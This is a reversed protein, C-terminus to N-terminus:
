PSPPVSTATRFGLFAQAYLADDALWPTNMPVAKPQRFDGGRFVPVTEDPLEPHPAWSETWEAVNGAMGHVGDPSLDGAVADVDCWLAHGDSGGPMAGSTGPYDSGTNALAPDPQAGWPYLRGDTGRAAREWEQETPLRRGLWRACAWADWWDVHFVPSQLTLVAGHWPQGARAAELIGQWDKPEHGGKAAPQDKHDFRRPDGAAVAELFAGYTGITVEHRDIWFEALSLRRGDGFLFEGGPIRVMGSVDRLAFEQQQKRKQFHMVAAVTGGVLALLVVAAPWVRKRGPVEGGRGGDAIRRLAAGSEAAVARWTGLGQAGPAKMLALLHSLERAGASRFDAAAMLVTALGRIEGSENPGAATGSVALNAVRVTGDEGHFVHAPTFSERPIRRSGLWGLADAAGHLVQLANVAPIRQGAARIEALSRGNVLERTYFVAGDREQVEYVAAIVPCDVAARARVLARFDRVAEADAAIEPKLRELVVERNVSRQVARFTDTRPLSRRKERLEYDGLVVPVGEPAAAARAAALEGLWAAVKSPAAGDMQVAELGPFERRLQERMAKGEVTAFRGSFLFVDLGSLGAALSPLEAPESATLVRYDPVAALEGVLAERSAADDTAILVIM